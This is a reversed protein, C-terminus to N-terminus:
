QAFDADIPLGELTAKQYREIIRVDAEFAMEPLPGSLSVWELLELDDGARKGLLM